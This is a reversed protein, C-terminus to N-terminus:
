AKILKVLKDDLKWLEDEAQLQRGVTDLSEQISPALEQLLVGPQDYFGARKLLGHCEDFAGALDPADIARLSQILFLLEQESLLQEFASSFGEMDMECRTSVIYWVIRDADAFDKPRTTHNLRACLADYYDALIIASDTM